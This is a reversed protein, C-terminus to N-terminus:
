DFRKLSPEHAISRQDERIKEIIDEVLEQETPLRGVMHHSGNTKSALAQTVSFGYTERGYYHPNTNIVIAHIGAKRLLKAVSFVDEVAVGEYERVIARIEDVTRVEGTELSRKLPINANGDTIVVLVPITSRDRRKAEKLVDLSKMMGAALPTLGSIRLNLLKNAVVRLNAIPHQVVVAGMDKLAVIGVKDRYRYADTHLKLLAQKVEEISLLMSGSMDILFVITMPAKYRRLKERVDTLRVKLMTSLPKQHNEPNRAAARITAPLHIDKPTGHPRKWGMSRGRHLTTVTEARKGAFCSQARVPQSIKFLFEFRKLASTKIRSLLPVGDELQPQKLATSVTPIAKVPGKLESEEFVKGRLKDSGKVIGEAVPTDKPAKKMKKGFGFVPAIRSLFHFIRGRLKSRTKEVATEEKESADKKAWIMARGKPKKKQLEKDGEAPETKEVYKVDKMKATFVKRIEEPTAPELFGGERTRHSLALESAVLVDESSVFTRKEFGALTQATKSIVIDPRMGDVKLDLCAKCIAELLEEALTVEPLLERAHAIRKKLKDQAPQCKEIYAEPTAEFELNRKVVKMREEVTALREVMVSLPFRDLLQPRLEGEEPNMTGIFIFHSPHSVSIGEREVV